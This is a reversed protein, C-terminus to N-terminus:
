FDVVLVVVEVVEKTFQDALYETVFQHSESWFEETLLQLHTRFVRSIQSVQNFVFSLLRKYVDSVVRAERKQHVKNSDLETGGIQLM